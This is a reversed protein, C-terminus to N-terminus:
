QYRRGRGGVGEVRSGRADGGDVDGTFLFVRGTGIAAACKYYFAAPAGYAEMLRGGLLPGIVLGIAHVTCLRWSTAAERRAARLDALYAPDGCECGARRGRVAGEDAGANDREECRRKWTRRRWSANAVM